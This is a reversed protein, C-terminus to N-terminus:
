ERTGMDIVIVANEGRPAWLVLGLRQGAAAELRVSGLDAEALRCGSAPGSGFRLETAGVPLPLYSAGDGGFGNAQRGDADPLCTGDATDFGVFSRDRGLAILPGSFAVLTPSGAPLQPWPIGYQQVGQEWVPDMALIPDGGGSPEEGYVVVTVRDGAALSSFSLATGAPDAASAVEVLEAGDGFERKPVDVFASVEGPAAELLTSTRTRLIVSPGDRSADSWANVIRITAGSLATEPTPTPDRFPPLTLEGGSSPRRTPDGSLGPSPEADAGRDASPSGCGRLVLLALVALGVVVAVLLNRRSSRSGAGPPAPPTM